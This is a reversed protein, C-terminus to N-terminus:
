VADARGALQQACLPGCCGPWLGMCQCFQRGHPSDSQLQHGPSLGQLWSTKHAYSFLFAYDAASFFRINDYNIRGNADYLFRTDPINDVAFRLLSVGLTSSSDIKAAFSIYDYQAIGAFYEAHMLSAEYPRTLSTLGAPNWYGATVDSAIATQTGAMGLARAGAGIALFENSYKPTSIQASAQYMQLLFFMALGAVRKM